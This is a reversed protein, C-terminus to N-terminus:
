AGQSGYTGRWDGYGVSFRQFAKCKMDGTDFDDAYDFELDTRTFFNLDHDSKDALVFWADTDTLYHNVMLELGDQKIPNIENNTTYPKFESGVLERAVMIIDPPVLLTKPVVVIPVNTEDVLKHFSIMAAELASQSLDTAGASNSYTGGQAGTLTHTTSFLNQQTGAKPFGDAVSFGNNFVNASRVERVVRAGKGLERSMKTPRVVDYRDDDNAERTVRYGGGFSVHTYRKVGGQVPDAYIVPSGQQKEAMVGLGTFELDEEYNRDSTLMNFIGQYEGVRAQYEMFLVNRLGVAILKSSSGTNIAM